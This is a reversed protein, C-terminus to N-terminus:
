YTKIKTTPRVWGGIWQTGSAREKPTFCGPRSVSWEGEDLVLTL